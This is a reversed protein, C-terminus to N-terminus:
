TDWHLFLIIEPTEMVGPVGIYHLSFIAFIWDAKLELFVGCWVSVKLNFWAHLVIKNQKFYNCFGGLLFIITYKLKLINKLKIFM